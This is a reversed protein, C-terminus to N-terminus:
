STRPKAKLTGLIAYPEAKQEASSPSIDVHFRRGSRRLTLGPVHESPRLEKVVVRMGARRLTVIVYCGGRRRVGATWTGPVRLTFDCRSFTWARPTIELGRLLQNVSMFEATSAFTASVDFSRGNAMFVRRAFRRRIRVLAIPLRVQRAGFPPPLALLQVRAGKNQARLVFKASFTSAPIEIRSRWGRPLHLSVGDHSLVGDQARIIRPPRVQMTALVRNPDRLPHPGLPKPGLDAVLEFSEEGVRAGRMAFEHGLPFGELPAPTLDHHTFKPAGHTKRFFHPNYPDGPGYDWIIVHVHGRRAHAREASALVNHALPFDAFQIQGPAVLGYWGKPLKVSVGYGGLTRTAHHHSCATAVVAVGVLATM